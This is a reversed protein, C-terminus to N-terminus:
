PSVTIRLTAADRGRRRSLDAPREATADTAAQVPRDADGVIVRQEVGQRAASDVRGSCSCGPTATSCTCRWGRRRGARGRWGATAISWCGRTTRRANCCIPSASPRPSGFRRARGIAAHGADRRRRAAASGGRRDPVRRQDRADAGAAGAVDREAGLRAAAPVRSLGAGRGVRGRLQHLQALGFRDAHEIVILTANPM